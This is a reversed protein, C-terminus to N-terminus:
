RCSKEMERDYSFPLTTREMELIIVILLIKLVLKEKM